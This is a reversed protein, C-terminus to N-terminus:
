QVPKKDGTDTKLIVIKWFLGLSSNDCWQPQSSLLIFQTENYTKHNGFRGKRRVALLFARNSKPPFFVMHLLLSSPSLKYDTHNYGTPPRCPHCFAPTNKNLHHSPTVFHGPLIGGEGLRHPSARIVSIEKQDDPRSYSQKNRNKKLVLFGKATERNDEFIM